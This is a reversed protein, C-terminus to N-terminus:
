FDALELHEVEERRTLHNDLIYNARARGMEVGVELGSRFHFGNYIRSLMCSEVADDITEYSRM